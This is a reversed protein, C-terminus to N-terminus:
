KIFGGKKGIYSNEDQKLCKEAERVLEDLLKVREFQQNLKRDKDLINNIILSKQLTPDYQKYPLQDSLPSHQQENISGNNLKFQKSNSLLQQNSTQSHHVQQYNNQNQQQLQQQQPPTPLKVDVYRICQQQTQNSQTLSSINTNSNTNVTLKKFLKSLSGNQQQQEASNFSTSRNMGNVTENMNTLTQNGDPTTYYYECKKVKLLFKNTQELWKSLYKYVKANGINL